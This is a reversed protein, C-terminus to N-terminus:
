FVGDRKRNAPLAHGVFLFVPLNGVPPAIEAELQPRSFGRPSFRKRPLESEDPRHVEFARLLPIGKKAWVRSGKAARHSRAAAVHHVAM